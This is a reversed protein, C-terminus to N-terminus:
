FYGKLADRAWAEVVKSSLKRVAAADAKSLGGLTECRGADLCLEIAGSLSCREIDASIYNWTRAVAKKVREKLEVNM